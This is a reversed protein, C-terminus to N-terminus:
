RLHPTPCNGEKSLSPDPTTSKWASGKNEYVNESQETSNLDLLRSDLTSSHCVTVMRGSRKFQGRLEEIGPSNTKMSMRPKNGSFGYLILRVGLRLPRWSRWTRPPPGVLQPMARAPIEYSYGVMTRNITLRNAPFRREPLALPAPDGKIRRELSAM